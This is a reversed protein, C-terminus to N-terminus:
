LHPTDRVATIRPTIANPRAAQPDSLALSENPLPRGVGVSEVGDVVSATPTSDVVATVDDGAV